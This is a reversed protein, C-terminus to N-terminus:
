ARWAPRQCVYLRLNSAVQQWLRLAGGLLLLRDDELTLWRRLLRAAPGPLRPPLLPEQAWPAQPVRDWYDIAAELIPGRLRRGLAQVAPLEMLAWQVGYGRDWLVQFGAAQLWGRLEQRHYLYQFFRLGPEPAPTRGPAAVREFAAVPRAGDCLVQRSGPYLWQRLPSLDPVVVLFLGGPQLVRHAERLAAAPGEEFHEIVGGSYYAAVSGAALPLADVRGACAPVGPAAARLVRLAGLAFDVGIVRYGRRALYVALAGLGCGGDLVWDRRPVLRALPACLPHLAYSAVMDELAQLAWGAEWFAAEGGGRERALYMKLM